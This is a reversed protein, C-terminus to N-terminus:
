GDHINFYYYDTYSNSELPEPYPRIASEQSCPFSGEHEIFVSFTKVLHAVIM